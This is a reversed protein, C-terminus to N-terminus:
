RRRIPARIYITWREDRRPASLLRPRSTVRARGADRPQGLSLRSRQRARSFATTRGGGGGCNDVHGGGRYHACSLNKESIVRTYLLIIMVTHIWYIIYAYALEICTPQHASRNLVITHILRFILISDTM